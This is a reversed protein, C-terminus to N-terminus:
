GFLSDRGLITISFHLRTWKIICNTTFVTTNSQHLRSFYKHCLIIKTKATMGNILSLMNTENEPTCVLQISIHNCGATQGMTFYAICPVSWKCIISSMRIAFSWIVLIKTCMYTPSFFGNVLDLLPCEDGTKAPNMNDQCLKLYKLKM